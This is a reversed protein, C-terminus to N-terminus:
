STIYKQNNTLHWTSFHLWLLPKRTRKKCKCSFTVFMLCSLHTNWIIIFWIVMEGQRGQYGLGMAGKPGVPGPPGPLGQFMIDDKWMLRESLYKRSWVLKWLVVHNHKSFKVTDWFFNGGKLQRYSRWIKVSKWFKHVALFRLFNAVFGM